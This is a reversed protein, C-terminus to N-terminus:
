PQGFGPSAGRKHRYVASSAGLVHRIGCYSAVASGALIAAVTAYESVAHESRLVDSLGPGAMLFFLFMGVFVLVMSPVPGVCLVAVSVLWTVALVIVMVVTVLPLAGPHGWLASLVAFLAFGSLAAIVPISLFFLALRGRSVPLMRFARAATTWPPVRAVVLIFFPFCVFPVVSSGQSHGHRGRSIMLMIFLFALFLLIVKKAEQAWISPFGGPATSIDSPHVPAERPKTKAARQRQVNGEGLRRARVYSLAICLAALPLFGATGLVINQVPDLRITLIMAGPISIGWLAGFAGARIHGAPTAPQERPLCSLLVLMAGAYGANLLFAPLVYGFGALQAEGSLVLLGVAVAHAAAQLVPFVLVGEVWFATALGGRAVPLTRTARTAGRQLEWSLLIPGAMAMPVFDDADGDVCPLFGVLAVLVAVWWWRRMFDLVLIRM